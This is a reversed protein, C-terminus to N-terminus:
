ENIWVGPIVVYRTSSRADAEVQSKSPTEPLRDPIETAAAPIGPELTIEQGGFRITASRVARLHPRRGQNLRRHRRASLPSRPTCWRGSPTPRRPRSSSGPRCWRRSRRMPWSASDSGPIPTPHSREVIDRRRAWRAGVPGRRGRYAGARRRPHECVGVFGSGPGLCAPRTWDATASV